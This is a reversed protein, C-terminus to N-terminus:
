PATRVARGGRVNSRLYQYTHTSAAANADSVQLRAITAGSDYWYGGRYGSGVSDPGPWGTVSAEGYENLAGDGHLGDFLRGTAHRITVAQEVQSGSLEMIGWYGAGASIRTAGNTAFIGARLAGRNADGTGGDGGTIDQRGYVAAGLSVDTTVTETGDEAGSLVLSGVPVITATGWANENALYPEPGRCAKEYETESMPRLGSWAAYAAVDAWSLWSCIRDPRSVTFSPWSGTVVFRNHAAARRFEMPNRNASQPLTLSNLFDVYQGQTIMYKMCYFASYGNPWANTSPKYSNVNGGYAPYGGQYEGSGISAPPNTANATNIRTPNFASNAAGDGVWFAGEAVYVMEIGCAQVEVSRSASIGSDTLNWEITVNTRALTGAGEESRRIFAGMRDTPVSIEIPTGEADGTSHGAAELVVHQWDGNTPRVKFFVWAADHYYKDDADKAYRWSNEWSIDFRVQATGDPTGPAIVTTNAIRLNNAAVPGASYVCIAMMLAATIM